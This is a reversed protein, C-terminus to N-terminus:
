LDGTKNKLCPKLLIILAFLGCILMITDEYVGFKPIQIFIPFPIAWILLLIYLLKNTGPLAAALLVLAFATTPCPHTGVIIMGPFFHGAAMGVLPYAFVAFLLFSSVMQHWRSVPWKFNIKKRFIDLGFLVSLTIFLGAQVKEQIGPFLQAHMLFFVIGIWAFCFTFYIKVFFDTLTGPRKIILGTIVAAMFVTIIQLPFIDSGYARIIGWWIQTDIM